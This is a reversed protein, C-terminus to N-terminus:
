GLGETLCVYMYLNSLNSCPAAVNSAQLATTTPPNLAKSLPVVAPLLMLLRYKETNEHWHKNGKKNQSICCKAMRRLYTMWTAMGSIGPHTASSIALSSYRRLSAKLTCDCLELCKQSFGWLFRNYLTSRMEGKDIVIMRWTQTRKTSKRQMKQYMYGSFPMRKYQCFYTHFKMQVRWSLMISDYHWSMVYKM